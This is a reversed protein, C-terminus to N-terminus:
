LSLGPLTVFVEETPNVLQATYSSLDISDLDGSWSGFFKSFETPNDLTGPAYVGIASFDPLDQFLESGSPALTSESDVPRLATILNIQGPALRVKVPETAVAGSFVVQADSPLNLLVGEGPFIITDAPQDWAGFVFSAALETGDLQFITVGSFNPLEGFDALTFHPRVAVIDNPSLSLQEEVLIGTQQDNLGLITTVRGVDVGSLVHIYSPGDLEPVGQKFILSTGSVSELESQFTKEKLLPSGILYNGSTGSFTVYGVPDTSITLEEDQANLAPTAALVLASGAVLALYKPTLKM